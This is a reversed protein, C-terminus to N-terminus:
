ITRSSHGAVRAPTTSWTKCGAGTPTFVRGSLTTRSADCTAVQCALGSCAGCSTNECICVNNTCAFGAPCTPNCTITGGCEDGIPGGCYAGGNSVQCTIPICSSDGKCRGTTTDCVKAPGCDVPCTLPALETAPVM